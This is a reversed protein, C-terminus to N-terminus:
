HVLELMFMNTEYNFSNIINNFKNLLLPSINNIKYTNITTILSNNPDVLTQLEILLKNIDALDTTLTDAM